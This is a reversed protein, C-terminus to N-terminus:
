WISDSTYAKSVRVPDRIMNTLLAQSHSDFCNFTSLTGSTKPKRSKPLLRIKPLPHYSLCAPRPSHVPLLQPHLPCLLSAHFLFDLCRITTLATIQSQIEYYAVALFPRIDPHLTSDALVRPFPFQFM